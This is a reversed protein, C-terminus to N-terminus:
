ETELVLTNTGYDFWIKTVSLTTTVSFTSFRIKTEVGVELGLDKDSLWDVSCEPIALEEILEKLTMTVM